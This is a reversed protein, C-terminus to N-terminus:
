MLLRATFCRTRIETLKETKKERTARNTDSCSHVLVILVFTIFRFGSPHSIKLNVFLVNQSKLSLFACGDKNPSVSLFSCFESPEYIVMVVERLMESLIITTGDKKKM